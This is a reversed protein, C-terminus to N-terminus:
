PIRLGLHTLPRFLAVLGAIQGLMMAMVAGLIGLRWILPVGLGIITTSIALNSLLIAKSKGAMRLPYTALINCFVLSYIACYWQLVWAHQAMNQGMILTLVHYASLALALVLALLIALLAGGGVLYLRLTRDIGRERLSNGLAKPVIYELSVIIPNAIGIVSANSRLIGVPRPGTFAALAAVVIQDSLANIASGASLWKGDKALTALERRIKSFGRIRLHIVGFAIATIAVVGFATGLAAAYIWGADAGSLRLAVIALGALLFRSVDFAILRAIRGAFVMRRRLYESVFLSAAMTGAVPPWFPNELSVILFVGLGVAGLVLALVALATMLTDAADLMLSQNMADLSSALSVLPMSVMANALVVFGISIAYFLSFSGFQELPLSRVLYVTIGFTGLSSLGQAAIVAVRPALFQLSSKM